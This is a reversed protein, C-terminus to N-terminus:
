GLTVRDTLSSLNVAPIGEANDGFFSLLRNAVWVPNEDAIVAMLWHLVAARKVYIRKGIWHGAKPVLDAAVDTGVPGFAQEVLSVPAFNAEGGLALVPQTLPNSRLTANFFRGDAAVTATSFYGLCARLFGPKSISTAYRTLHDQSISEMGSYSAQFFYWALMERERGSIFYQAADPVSFFALQWPGYLSWTPAPCAIQEYGYGPLLYESFGIRRVLSRYKAALAAALGVGKDHSFVYAQTINLFDFVGKLDEAVTEASYDDNSPVSSDGM